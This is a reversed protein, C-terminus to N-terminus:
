EIVTKSRNHKRRTKAPCTGTVHRLHLILDDRINSQVVLWRFPHHDPTLPGAVVDRRDGLDTIISPSHVYSEFRKRRDGYLRQWNTRGTPFVGSRRASLYRPPLAQTDPPPTGPTPSPQTTCPPASPFLSTPHHPARAM